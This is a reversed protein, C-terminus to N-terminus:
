PAYLRRVGAAIQPAIEPGVSNVEGYQRRGYAFPEDFDYQIKPIIYGLADNGQNVIARVRSKPMLGRLPPEKEADPFDVNENVVIFSSGDEADLWLEPYLEGPVSLLELPGLTLAGVESQFLVAGALAEEATFDEAQSRRLPGDDADFLTREFLGGVYATFFAFNGITFTIRERRAALTVDDSAAVGEFAAVVRDAVGYGIYEALEFTGAPCTREGAANPCGAIHLPNMLGGLTGAFFVAPAGEYAAELRERLYHPYDSTLRTNDGDLAEPHNGWIALTAFPAGDADLAQLATVTPDIVEPERSDHILHGATATAVRLAAPQATTDAEALAAVTREVISALYEPDRGSVFPTEGWVGMTDPGEHQHTTAVLIQDFGLGAEDAARRVSLVDEHFYGILDLAVVAIKLDGREFTMVRAWLDDHIETAARGRGFGALWVTDHVGDGDLDEFAEGEDWRGDGDDDDWPEVNPTIARVAVGVRLAGDAARCAPDGPCRLALIRGDDDLLSPTQPAPEEPTSSCAGLILSLGLAARRVSRM